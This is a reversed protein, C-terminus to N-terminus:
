KKVKRQSIYKQKRFNNKFPPNIQTRWLTSPCTIKLYRRKKFTRMYIISTRKIAKILIFM